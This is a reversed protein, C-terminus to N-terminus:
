NLVLLCLCVLSFLDIVSSFLIALSFLFVNQFLVLFLKLIYCTLGLLLITAQHNMYNIDDIAASRQTQIFVCYVCLCVFLSCWTYM